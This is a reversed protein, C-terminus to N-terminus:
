NFWQRAKGHTGVDVGDIDTTVIIEKKKLRNVFVDIKKVLLKEENTFENIKREIGM